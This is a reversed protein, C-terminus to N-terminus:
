TLDTCRRPLFINVIDPCHTVKLIKKLNDNQFKKTFIYKVQDICPIIFYMGPGITSKQKLKGMRFIVGREYEQVTRLTYGM